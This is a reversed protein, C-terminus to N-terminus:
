AEGRRERDKDCGCDTESQDRQDSEGPDGRKVM